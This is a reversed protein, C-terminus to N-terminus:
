VIVPPNVAVKYELPLSKLRELLDERPWEGNEVRILMKKVIQGRKRESISRFFVPNESTFRENLLSEKRSLGNHDGSYTVTILVSFPPYSLKERIDAEERLFNIVKKNKLDSLLRQNPLRTQIITERKAILTMEILNRFAKESASYNPYTLLSDISAVLVTGIELSDTRIRNLALETGVLISGKKDKFSEWLVDEKKRTSANDSDMRVIKRDPLAKEMLDAIKESGIGLQTLRWSGCGPCVDKPEKSSNCSHCIFSRIKDKGHLVLPSSCRSCSFTFGCDSCTTTPSLGRRATYVFAHESEREYIKQLASFSLYPFLKSKKEKNELNAMDVISVKSGDAYRKQLPFIETLDGESYDKFSEISLISDASILKAGSKRALTRAFFSINFHPRKTTYYTESAERELILTNIPGCPASLFLGTSVILKPNRNSIAEWADRTSKVTMDGHLTFTLHEIGKKLYNSIYEADRRTPVCIFIIKGRALSERIHQKYFTLRDNLSLQLLSTEPKMESLTDTEVAMEKLAEDLVAKPTVAKLVSGLSTAYFDATERAAEIIDKSYFKPTLISNIKKLGFSSSKIRTKVKSVPEKKIVLAPSLRNRISVSVLSGESIDRDTFYSLEERGVNNTLPTVTVIEM